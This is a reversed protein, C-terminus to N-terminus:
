GTRADHNASRKRWNWVGIAVWILQAVGFAWPGQFFFYAAALASTGAYALTFWPSREQLLYCGLMAIFVLLFILLSTDM